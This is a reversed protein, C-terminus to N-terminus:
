NKEISVDDLEKKRRLYSYIGVIMYFIVTHLAVLALTEYLDSSNWVKGLVDIYVSNPKTLFNIFHPLFHLGVLISVQLHWISLQPTRLGPTSKEGHKLISELILLMIFISMFWGFSNSLPVAFFGGGNPYAWQKDVLVGLPDQIADLGSAIVMGVIPRKLLDLWKNRTSPKNSGVILDALVWAIVAFNFYGFGVILPVEFITPGPTFHEFVGYPFGTYISINEIFITIVFTISYFVITRKGGLFVISVILAYIMRITTSQLIPALAPFSLTVFPMLIFIGVIIWGVVPNIKTKEESFNEYKSM